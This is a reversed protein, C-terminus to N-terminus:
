GGILTLTELREMEALVAGRGADTKELLAAAKAIQSEFLESDWKGRRMHLAVTNMARVAQNYHRGWRVLEAYIRGITQTDLAVCRDDVALGDGEIPIRILYRLYDSQSLLLSEAHQKLMQYDGDSLRCSILQTKEAPM